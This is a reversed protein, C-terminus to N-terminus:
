KTEQEKSRFQADTEKINADEYYTHKLHRYKKLSIVATMERVMHRGEAIKRKLEIEDTISKNQNFWAKAKERVYSLGKPYDRGVFIIRKYLDRVQPHM